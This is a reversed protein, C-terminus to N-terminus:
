RQSVIKVKPAIKQRNPEVDEQTFLVEVM